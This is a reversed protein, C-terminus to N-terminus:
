PLTLSSHNEKLDHAPTNLRGRLLDTHATIVYQHLADTLADALPDAKGLLHQRWIESAQKNLEIRRSRESQQPTPPGQPEM